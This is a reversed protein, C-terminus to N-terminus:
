VVANMMLVGAEGVDNSDLRSELDTLDDSVSVVQRAGVGGRRQKRKKNTKEIWHTMYDSDFAGNNAIQDEKVAKYLENCKLM